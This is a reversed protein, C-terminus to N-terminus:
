TEVNSDGYSVRKGTTQELLSKPHLWPFSFSRSKMEWRPSKMFDPSRSSSKIPSYLLSRFSDFCANRAHFDRRVAPDNRGLIRKLLSIRTLLLRRHTFGYRWLVALGRASDTCLFRSTRKYVWRFRIYIFLTYIYFFLLINIHLDFTFFIYCWSNSYIQIGNIQLSRRM